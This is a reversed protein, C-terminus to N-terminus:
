QWSNTEMGMQQHVMLQLLVMMIRIRSRLMGTGMTVKSGMFTEAPNVELSGFCILSASTEFLTVSHYYSCPTKLQKNHMLLIQMPPFIPRTLFDNASLQNKCGIYPTRINNETIKFLMDPIGFFLIM